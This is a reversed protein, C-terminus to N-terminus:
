HGRTAIVSVSMPLWREDPWGWMGEPRETLVGFARWPLTDHEHLADIRLGADILATVIEGLPHAWQHSRRNQLRVEGDAYDREEDVIDPSGDGFYPYTFAPSADSDHPTEFVFAAPHGDAFYLRGGPKLYWSVIRAWEDVDPLWVLTGWTVYVVDFSEPEPLIHRADYVNAEIFRARDALGLEAAFRRAEVVAPRSFDIGVVTAGRQALTLSDSGFHCQLHLVRLGEWGDPAVADLEAEDIPTLRGRGASLESRDYFESRIHHPTVEDWRDRNDDLWDGSALDGRTM